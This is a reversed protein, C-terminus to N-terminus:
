RGCAWRSAIGQHAAGPHVYLSARGRVVSFRGEDCVLCLDVGAGAGAPVLRLCSLGCREVPACCPSVWVGVSCVGAWVGRFWGRCAPRRVGLARASSVRHWMTPEPLVPPRMGWSPM